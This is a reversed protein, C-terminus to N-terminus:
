LGYIWHSLGDNHSSSDNLYGDPDSPWLQLEIATGQDDCVIVSSDHAILQVIPRSDLRVRHHERCLSYARETSPTLKDHLVLLIEGRNNGAFLFMNLEKIFCPSVSPNIATSALIFFVHPLEVDLIIVRQTACSTLVIFHGADLVTVNDIYFFTNEIWNPYEILENTNKEVDVLHLHLRDTEVYLVSNLAYYYVKGVRSALRFDVIQRTDMHFWSLTKESSVYVIQGSQPVVVVHNEESCDCSESAPLLYEQESWEADGAIFHLTLMAWEGASSVALVKEDSVYLLSHTLVTEYACQRIPFSTVHLNKLPYDKHHFLCSGM